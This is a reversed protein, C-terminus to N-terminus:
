PPSSGSHSCPAVMGATRPRETTATAVSAERLSMTTRSVAVSSLTLPILFGLFVTQVNAGLASLGLVGICTM